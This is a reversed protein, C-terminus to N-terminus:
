LVPRLGDRDRGATRGKAAEGCLRDFLNEIASRRWFFSGLAPPPQGLARCLKTLRADILRLRLYSGSPRFGARPAQPLRARRTPLLHRPSPLASSACHPLPGCGHKSTSSQPPWSACYVTSASPSPSIVILTNSIRAAIM